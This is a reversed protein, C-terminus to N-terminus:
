KKRRPKNSSNIKKLNERMSTLSAGIINRSSLLSKIKKDDNGVIGGLLRVEVPTLSVRSKDRLIINVPAKIKDPNSFVGNLREKEHYHYIM